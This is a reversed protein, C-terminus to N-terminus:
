PSMKRFLIRAGFQPQVTFSMKPAHVYSPSVTFSYHKIIIALAIKAEVLALNQAVCIKSGLGFPFYSALHKRPEAFRLPNFENADEGWMKKDHHVEIVAIYFQTKAPVEIEGLKVNKLARRRMQAVPPYLRLTENVIMNVIKLDNLNNATPLTDDKCIQSIEQRAKIQWDQHLALLLLAWTMVNGTTEKGAFYFTKCEDIVEEVTLGREEEDNENKITAMLLSLLNSSDQTNKNILTMILDRIEKELRWRMRNKKTPFFRFGPIYINRMAQLTLSVQQEQLEFIFKGEEFSSGFATRSIVEASLNHLEKFVEMEFEERGERNEEWKGVMKMTSAVIDPVWAKVREMKFAHTAIKRHNAWKDGTLGALGQGFLQKSLPNFALKDFTSTSNPLVQKILDPDALTLTADLGYWLLFTKGYLTSWKHYHPIIRNVIDHNFSMSKSEAEKIMQGIEKLNGFIPCYAPGQIGQRNFYKQIRWPVLLISYVFRLFLIVILLFIIVLLLHM